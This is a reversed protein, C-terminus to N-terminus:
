GADRAAGDVESAALRRGGASVEPNEIVGPNEMGSLLLGAACVTCGVQVVSHAGEACIAGETCIGLLTM